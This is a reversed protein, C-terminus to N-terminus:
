MPKSEKQLTSKKKPRNFYYMFLGFLSAEFLYEFTGQVRDLVFHDMLFMILGFTAGSTIGIILNINKESHKNNERM